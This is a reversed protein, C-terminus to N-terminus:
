LSGSMVASHATATNRAARCAPKRGPENRVAVGGRLHQFIDAGPGVQVLDVQLAEVGAMVALQAAPDRGNEVGDAANVLHAEPQFHHSEDDGAEVIGVLSQAAHRFKQGANRAINRPVHRCKVFVVLHLPGVIRGGRRQNAGGGDAARGSQPVDVGPVQGAFGLPQFIRAAGRAIGREDCPAAEAYQSIAQPRRCKGRSRRRWERHIPRAGAADRLSRRGPACESRSFPGV